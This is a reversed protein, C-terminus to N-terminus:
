KAKAAKVASRVMIHSKRPGPVNGRILLLNRETDVRVISLNQVTVRRGGMRGPLKRGKYVRMPDISSLAGPSRHYHSGHTKPGRSQNHRKISGQFGKGKSTGVVDVIDGAAFTDVKVESGVDYDDVNLESIEKIFRKPKTQAKDVHGKEPQTARKEKKDAFGVQVAEYGDNEATKKQLVINPEAEVVTVPIVEGDDSFVQTMGIKRGLIGKAM